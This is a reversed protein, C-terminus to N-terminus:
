ADRKMRLVVETRGVDITESEAPSYGDAEVTVEYSGAPLRAAFSGGPAPIVVTEGTDRNTAFVTANEINVHALPGFGSVDGALIGSGGALDPSIPQAASRYVMAQPQSLIPTHGTQMGAGLIGLATLSPGKAYAEASALPPEEDGEPPEPVGFPATLPPVAMPGPTDLDFLKGRLREGFALDSCDADCCKSPLCLDGLVVFQSLPDDTTGGATEVMRKAAEALSAGGLPLDMARALAKLETDALAGLQELDSRLAYILVLTGGKPVGGRHELGPHRQAYGSLTLDEFIARMRRMLEGMLGAGSLATAQARVASSYDKMMLNDGATKQGVAGPDVPANVAYDDFRNSFQAMKADFGQIDFEQLSSVASAAMLEETAETLAVAKYVRAAAAERDTGEPLDISAVEARVKEYLNGDGPAAAIKGYLGAITAEGKAAADAPITVIAAQGKTLGDRRLRLMLEASKEKVAIREEPAIRALEPAEASRLSDTRAMRLINEIDGAALEPGGDATAFVRATSSSSVSAEGPGDDVMAVSAMGMTAMPPVTHDATAQQGIARLIAVLFAVLAALLGLIVVEFDGMRCLILRQMAGLAVRASAADMQRGRGAISLGTWVPEIAFDLGLVRKTEVLEAIATDLRRGVHGAVAYFEQDDLRFLLPHAGTRPSYQYAYVTNLLGGRTKAPNWARHLDDGTAFAYYHPIARAGLPATDYRSPTIRIERGVLGRLQFRQALLTLRYFAARLDALEPGHAAATWGTRRRDPRPMPGFGGNAALPDYSAFDSPAGVVESAPRPAPDADGLLVHRPFRAARPLCAADFARAAAVVENYSAALDLLYHYASLALFPEAAVNGWFNGFYDDPFPGNTDPFDAAPFDERLLHRYAAWLGRLAGPVQTSARFFIQLLRAFLVPYSGIGLRAFGIDEIRLFPLAHGPHTAPDAPGHAADAVMADAHSRRVLLRRLVLQMEAGRDSCDNIDCNRLSRETMELFLMVTKDSLFESSLADPTLEDEPIVTDTPIMEWTEVQGEEDFLYPYRAAEIDAPTADTGEPLPLEYPRVRDCVTAAEAIVMGHSTVAVGRGIHVRGAQDVDIGFGCMVGIGVLARRTLRDETDLFARLDNLHRATLAQNDQFVPFHDLSM